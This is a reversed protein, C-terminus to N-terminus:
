AGRGYRKDRPSLANYIVPLVAALGADLIMEPDRVGALYCAIMAAAFLKLYSVLAAQWKTSM